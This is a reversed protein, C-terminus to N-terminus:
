RSFKSGGGSMKLDEFKLNELEVINLDIPHRICLEIIGCRQLVELVKADLDVSIRLKRVTEFFLFSLVFLCFMLVAHVCKASGVNAGIGFHSHCTM